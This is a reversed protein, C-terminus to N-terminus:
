AADAVRWAMACACTGHRRAFDTAFSDKEANILYSVAGQRYLTVDKSRHKAIATFGMVEFLGALEAPDPHAFEIFEFGATGVPNDDSIVPLIDDHPYPGM